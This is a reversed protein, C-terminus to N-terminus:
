ICVMILSQKSVPCVVDNVFCQQAIHILCVHSVVYVSSYAMVVVVCNICRLVSLQLPQLENLGAGQELKNRHVYEKQQWFLWQCGARATWSLSNNWSVIPHGLILSSIPEHGTWRWLDISGVTCPVRMSALLCHCVNKLLNKLVLQLKRKNFWRVVVAYLGSVLLCALFKVAWSYCYHGILHGLLFKTCSSVCM